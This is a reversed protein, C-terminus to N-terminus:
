AGDGQDQGPVEVVLVALYHLVAGPQPDLAGGTAAAQAGDLALVGVRDLRRDEVEVAVGAAQLGPVRDFQATEPQRRRLDAPVEGLLVLRARAGRRGGGAAGGDGR